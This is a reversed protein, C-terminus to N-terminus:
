QNPSNTRSDVDFIVPESVKKPLKTKGVKELDLVAKSRLEEDFASIDDGLDNISNVVKDLDLTMKRMKPLVSNTWLPQLHSQLIQRVNEDDLKAAQDEEMQQFSLLQIISRLGNPGVLLINQKAAYDHLGLDDVGSSPDYAAQLYGEGPVLMITLNLSDPLCSHYGKKSLDRIHNHLKEKYKKRDFDDDGNDKSGSLLENPPEPHKSDVVIKTGNKMEIVADPRKGAIELQLNFDKILSQQKAEDLVRQLTNEGADKRISISDKLRSQQIVINDYDKKLADYRITDVEKSERLENGRRKEECLSQVQSRTRIELQVARGAASVAIFTSVALPETLGHRRLSPM